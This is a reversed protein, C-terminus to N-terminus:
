VIKREKEKKREKMLFFQKDNSMADDYMGHRKRPYIYVQQLPTPVGYEDDSINEDDSSDPIVNIHRTRAVMNNIIFYEAINCATVFIALFWIDGLQM